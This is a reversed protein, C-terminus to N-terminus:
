NSIFNLKANSTSILYTKYSHYMDNFNINNIKNPISNLKAGTKNIDFRKVFLM